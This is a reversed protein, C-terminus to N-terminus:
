QADAPLQNRAPSGIEWGMFAATGYGLVVILGFGLYLKRLM